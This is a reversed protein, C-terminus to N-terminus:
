NYVRIEVSAKALAGDTLTGTGDTTSLQMTNGDVGNGSVKHAPHGADLTANVFTKNVSFGATATGIYLGTSSRNWTLTVGLTNELVISTPASTGTQSVLATYVKYPRTDTSTASLNGNADAVVVRSGTGSLNPIGIVGTESIGLKKLYTTGTRTTSQIIAFDGFSDYDNAVRWSRSNTNSGYDFRYSSLKGAAYSQVAMFDSYFGGDAGMKFESTRGLNANHGTANTGFLIETGHATDTFDETARISMNASSPARTTLGQGRFGWSWLYDGSLLQTPSTATGRAAWLHGGANGATAGGFNGFSVTPNLGDSVVQLKHPNEGNIETKGFWGVAVPAANGTSADSLLVKETDAKFVSKNVSTSNITTISLDIKTGRNTNSQIGDSIFKLWVKALEADIGNYPIAGFVAIDQNDLINTPSIKTGNYARAFFNPAAASGNKYRDLIIANGDGIHFTSEPLSTNIGVVGNFLPNLINAKNTNLNNLADTDNVGTVGSKNVVADTTVAVPVDYYSNYSSGYYVGFTVNGGGTGIKAASVHYRLREGTNLTINQTLIGSVPINTISGAVLNIVSSDLIAVVTVGLDGTPAGSVGSAIPVGLNNTRYIEVTFRQQTAVPTPTASVTLFGSYTGAYGITASPQAISIIDKTFYGKTNDGLVLAPPSGTATAGKGALSSTFFTGATVTTNDATFYVRQTIGASTSSIQGLKTDIGTLHQGISQNSILYNVPTYPIPLNIPAIKGQLGSLTNDTTTLFNVSTVTPQGGSIQIGEPFDAQGYGFVTFLILFLYILKKM